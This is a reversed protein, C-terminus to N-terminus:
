EEYQWYAEGPLELEVVQEVTADADAKLGATHIAYDQPLEYGVGHEQDINDYMDQAMEWQKDSLLGANYVAEVNSFAREWYEDLSNAERNMLINTTYDDGKRFALIDPGWASGPVDYTPYLWFKNPDPSELWAEAEPLGKEAADQIIHVLDHQLEWIGHWQTYDAGMMLAGHRYRRGEHHWVYYADEEVVEDYGAVTFPALGEFGATVIMGADNMNTLWRKVERYIENYQLANLDGVLLYKEIFPQAHCQRCVTEMNDRKEQWTLGDGWAETTRITFPSQTEWATRMGVDHTSPMGPAADMHCTTCTPVPIPVLGDNDESDYGLDWEHMHTTFINGHKSELFIEIHPHDPGIHCEGCTYPNRAVAVDFSHKAHCADCEGVSQDPWMHGINHCEQCGHKTALTPEFVKRDFSNGMFIMSTAAHKSRSFELVEDEHCGACDKPTPHSGITVGEHDWADFDDAEAKHCALCTAGAGDDALAPNHKSGEWAQVMKPTEETHCDICDQSGDDAQLVFDASPALQNVVATIAADDPATATVVPANVSMVVFLAAAVIAMAGIILPVRNRM